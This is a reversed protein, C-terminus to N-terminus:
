VLLFSRPQSPMLIARQPCLWTGAWLCYDALEPHWGWPPMRSRLDFVRVHLTGGILFIYPNPFLLTSVPIAGSWMMGLSGSPYNTSEMGEVPSQLTLLGAGWFPARTGSFSVSLSYGSCKSSENRSVLLCTSSARDQLRLQDQDGPPGHKVSMNGFPIPFPLHLFETRSPCPVLVESGEPILTQM